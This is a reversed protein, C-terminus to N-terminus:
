VSRSPQQEDEPVGHHQGANYVGGGFLGAALAFMLIAFPTGIPSSVVNLTLIAGAALCISMWILAISAERSM